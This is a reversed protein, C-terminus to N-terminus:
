LQKRPQFAWRRMLLRGLSPPTFLTFGRAHGLFLVDGFFLIFLRNDVREFAFIQLMRVQAKAFNHAGIAGINDLNSNGRPPEDLQM